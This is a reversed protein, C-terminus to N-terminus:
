RPASRVASLSASCGQGPPWIAELTAACILPLWTSSGAVAWCWEAGLERRDKRQQSQCRTKMAQGDHDDASQHRVPQPPAIEGVGEAGRDVQADAEDVPRWAPRGGPTASGHLTGGAACRPGDALRSGSRSLSPAAASRRTATSLSLVAAGGQDGRRHGRGPRRARSRPRGRGALRGRMQELRAAPAHLRDGRVAGVITTTGARSSTIGAPGTRGETRLRLRGPRGPRRRIRPGRPAPRPRAGVDQEGQDGQGPDPHPGSASRPRHGTTRTRCAM